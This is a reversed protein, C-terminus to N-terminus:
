RYEGSRAPRAGPPPDTPPPSTGAAASSRASRSEPTVAGSLQVVVAGALLVAGGFVQTASLAQGLVAWALVTATVPELLSLVSVVAPPLHRLAAMGALYAVLTAVLAIAVLLQWVQTHLGGFRAPATLLGAPMTWPPVVVAMAGAGIVLGWTAVGVPDSTRVNREGLLFYTAACAATALGAVVGVTDLSLGHWVQAVLVLGTVALAVGLWVTGPLVTRRVFRVWLTVLVPSLYELLMAVGIPLRSVTIFYLLQVTAVGILGYAVLVPV